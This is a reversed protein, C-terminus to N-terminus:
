QSLNQAAMGAGAAAIWVSLGSVMILQNPSVRKEETAQFFGNFGVSTIFASVLQTTCFVMVGKSIPSQTDLLQEWVRKQSWVTLTSPIDLIQGTMPYGAGWQLVRAGLESVMSAGVLMPYSGQTFANVIGASAAYVIGHSLLANAVSYSLM